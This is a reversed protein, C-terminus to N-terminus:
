VPMTQGGAEGSNVTKGTKKIKELVTEYSVSPETVVTATQNELSVDFSKVGELKKLVREVAGSCGGCSMSVNFRYTQESM